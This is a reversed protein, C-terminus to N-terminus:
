LLLQLRPLGQAILLLLETQPILRIQPWLLELLGPMDAVVAKNATNAMNATNANLAFPVSLLQTVGSLTFNSGGTPDFEIRLFKDNRTWNISNMTGTSATGGGIALNFLGLQNTVVNHIESYITRGNLTSDIISARVRVNQNPLVTGQASRAVAQYNFRQPSQAFLSVTLVVFCFLTFFKKMTM